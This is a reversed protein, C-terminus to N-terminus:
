VLESAVDCPGYVVGDLYIVINNRASKEIIFYTKLSIIVFVERFYKGFNNACFMMSLHFIKQYMCFQYKLYKNCEVHKALQM